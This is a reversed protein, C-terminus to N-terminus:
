KTKKRRETNKSSSSTKKKRTFWSENSVARTVLIPSTENFVSTYTKKSTKGNSNLILRAWWLHWKIQLFFYYDCLKEHHLRVKVCTVLM